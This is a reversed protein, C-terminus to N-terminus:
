TGDGVITHVRESKEIHLLAVHVITKDDKVHSIRFWQFGNLPPDFQTVLKRQLEDLAETNEEIGFIRKVGQGSSPDAIGLALMGGEGNAFACVTELAKGVM